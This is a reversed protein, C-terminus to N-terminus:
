SEQGKRYALMCAWIVGTIVAFISFMIPYMPNANHDGTLIGLAYIACVGFAIFFFLFMAEIATWDYESNNM